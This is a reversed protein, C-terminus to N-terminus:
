AAPETLSKALVDRAAAEAGAELTSVSVPGFGHGSEQGSLSATILVNRDRIVVTVVDTLIGDAHETQVAAFAQQGTKALTTIQAASLLSKAKATRPPKLLNQYTLAYSNQANASASGPASGAATAAAFPQYAQASVELVLFDPKRDLTFSCQSQTSESIESAVSRGPDPLYQSLVTNSVSGCTSPVAKFEGPLLSTVYPLPKPTHHTLLATIGAAVVCVVIALGCWRYVRRRSKRLRTAAARGRRSPRGPREDGAAPDDLEVPAQRQGPAHNAYSRGAYSDDDTITSRTGAHRRVTSAARVPYDNPGAWPPQEDEPDPGFGDFQRWDDRDARRTRDQARDHRGRHDSEPPRAPRRPPSGQQAM